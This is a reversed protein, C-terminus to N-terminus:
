FGFIFSQEARNNTIKSVDLKTLIVGTFTKFAALYESGRKSTMNAEVLDTIAGLPSNDAENSGKSAEKIGWNPDQFELLEM